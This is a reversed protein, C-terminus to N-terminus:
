RTGGFEAGMENVYSDTDGEPDLMVLLERVRELSGSIERCWFLVDELEPTMREDGEEFMSFLVTVWENCMDEFEVMTLEHFEGMVQVSEAGFLAELQEKYDRLEDTNNTCGMGYGRCVGRLEEGMYAVWYMAPRFLEVVEGKKINM